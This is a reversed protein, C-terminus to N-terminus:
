IPTVVAMWQTGATVYQGVRLTLEGVTGDIAALIDYLFPETTANV